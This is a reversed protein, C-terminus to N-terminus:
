QAAQSNVLDLPGNQADNNFKKLIWSKVQAGRNTFKVKYLDSEIVTESESAAQKNAATAIKGSGSSFASSGAHSSRASTAPASVSRSFIATTSSTSQEKSEAKKTATPRPM